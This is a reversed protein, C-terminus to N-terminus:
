TFHLLVKWPMFFYFFTAIYSRINKVAINFPNHPLEQRKLKQFTNGPLQWVSSPRTESNTQTTVFDCIGVGGPFRVGKAWYDTVATILGYILTLLFKLL